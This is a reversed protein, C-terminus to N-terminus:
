ENATFYKYAVYGLPIGVATAGILPYKNNTAFYILRAKWYTATDNPYILDHMIMLKSILKEQELSPQTSLTVNKRSGFLYWFPKYTIFYALKKEEYTLNKELQALLFKITVDNLTNKIKQDIDALFNLKESYHM